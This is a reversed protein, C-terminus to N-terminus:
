NKFYLKNLYMGLIGGGVPFAFIKPSPPEPSTFFLEFPKLTMELAKPFAKGWPIDDHALSIMNPSFEFFFTTIIAGIIMPIIINKLIGRQKFDNKQVTYDKM